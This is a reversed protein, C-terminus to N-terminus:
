KAFSMSMGSEEDSITISDEAISGLIDSGDSSLTIAMGDEVWTGEISEMGTLGSPDALVFTGDAELTLTIDFEDMGFQAALENLEAITMTTGSETNETLHYTGAAKSEGGGSGGCAVLTVSAVAVAAVAGIAKIKRM